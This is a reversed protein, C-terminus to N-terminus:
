VYHSNSSLKDDIEQRKSPLHALFAALHRGGTRRSRFRGFQEISDSGGHPRVTVSRAGFFSVHLPDLAEDTKMANTMRLFHPLLLWLKESGNPLGFSCPPKSAFGLGRRG